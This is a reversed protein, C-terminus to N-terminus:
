RKGEERDVEPGLQKDLYMLIIEKVKQTKSYPYDRLFRAIRIDQEKSLDLRMQFTKPLKQDTM